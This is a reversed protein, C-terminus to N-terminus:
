RRQQGTESRSFTVTSGSLSHRIPIDSAVPSPAFTSARGSSSPRLSTASTTSASTRLTPRTASRRSSARSTTPASPSAGMPRRRSSTRTRTLSSEPTPLRPHPTPSRDSLLAVGVSDLAVLRSRNTKTSKDEVGGKVVVVSRAVEIRGQELDVDSWRLGCLEGRRMGTLAAFMLLKAVEPDREEAIEVVRRVVDVSPVSVKRHVIKPPKSMEAVNRRVWGWRVAQHLAASITAHYHHITRASLGDDKLRGYFDDLHKATLRALPLKGLQPRIRKDIQSRYTRMTTPSLELRECESYWEDLLQGVTAGVGDSRAPAAEDVFARLAEDAERRLRPRHALAPDSPGVRPRERRLGAAGLRRAQAAAENRAHSCRLSM